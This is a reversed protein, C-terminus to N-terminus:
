FIHGFIREFDRGAERCDCDKTPAHGAIKELTKQLLDRLAGTNEAMVELVEEHTLRGGAMGAAFNTVMAVTAYCIGVERALAVEPFSTMGVLDGGLRAFMKIEAPTEFRPGETCVYVGGEHFSFKAPAHARLEGAAAALTKRLTPCYPETCDVHAVGNEGGEFFTHPRNKTFDIFQDVIVCDGPTMQTNLSGVAATAIIAEVGLVRMGWINALYNIRHPPVSHKAGHRPLFVVEHGKAEGTLPITMGYPTEVKIEKVKEMMDPDYVGSGGIIGIKM